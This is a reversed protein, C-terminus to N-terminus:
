FTLLNVQQHSKDGAAGMEVVLPDLFAKSLFHRYLLNLHEGASSIQGRGGGMEVLLPDLFVGFTYAVGDLVCLCIFSAVLVVWGWGGDPGEEEQVL